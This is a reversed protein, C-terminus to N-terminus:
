KLLNSELTELVAGELQEMQNIVRYDKYFDKVYHSKIGIVALHISTYKYIDSVVQKLYFSGSGLFTGYPRGDSLIIILKNKEPRLVLREAAFLLSEGDTNNEHVVDSSSLKDLLSKITSAENFEKFIYMKHYKSGETYGLVEYNVNIGKLVEALSLASAAALVYKSDQGISVKDGKVIMSGSCDVLLTVASDLELKSGKKDMFIKPQVKGSDQLYLRHLKSPSIKKGRKLNHRTRTRSMNLLKQRLTYSLTSKNFEQSIFDRVKSMVFAGERVRVRRQDTHPIYFEEKNDKYEKIIQDIPVDQQNDHLDKVLDNTDEVFEREAPSPPTYDEEENRKQSPFYRLLIDKLKLSLQCVGDVSKYKQLEELNASVLESYLEKAADKVIPCKKYPLMTVFNVMWKERYKFDAMLLAMLGLASEKGKLEEESWSNIQDLFKSFKPEYSLRFSSLIFARGRYESYSTREAMIDVVANLVIEQLKMIEETTQGLKTLLAPMIDYHWLNDPNLHASEHYATGIWRLPDTSSILPLKVLRVYGGKAPHYYYYAKPVVINASETVDIDRHQCWVRIFARTSYISEM